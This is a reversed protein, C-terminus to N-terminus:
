GKGVSVRKEFSYRPEIGQKRLANELASMMWPSGGIMAELAFGPTGDDRDDQEWQAHM